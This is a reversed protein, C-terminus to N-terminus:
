KGAGKKALGEVARGRCAECFEGSEADVTLISSEADRMVCGVASCHPLGAVHGLEHIAVKRLRDRLKKEDAGRAGLRFTSVLCTRGELSGLGFIGWDEHEEKTTSIDKETIGIVVAAQAAPVVAELHDLLKEARYRERPEYWAEKPLPKMALLEVRLGCSKELGEKMAALRDVNVKGLPQIAIAVPKVAEKEQAALPDAIFLLLLSCLLSKM